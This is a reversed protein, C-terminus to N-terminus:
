EHGQAMPNLMTDGAAQAPTLPEVTDLFLVVPLQKVQYYYLHM